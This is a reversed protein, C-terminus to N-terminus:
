SYRNPNWFGVTGSYYGTNEYFSQWDRKVSPPLTEWTPPYPASRRSEEAPKTPSQRPVTESPTPHAM